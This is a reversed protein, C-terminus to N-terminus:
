QTTQAFNNFAPHQTSRPDQHRQDDHLRHSVLQQPYGSLQPLSMQLMGSSQGLTTSLCCAGYGLINIFVFCKIKIIKIKVDQSTLLVFCFAGKFTLCFPWVKSLCLFLSLPTTWVPSLSLALWFPQKSILLSLFPLQHSLSLSQHFPSPLQGPLQGAINGFSAINFEIGLYPLTSNFTLSPSLNSFAKQEM